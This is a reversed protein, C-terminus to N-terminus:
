VIRSLKGSKMFKLSSVEIKDKGDMEASLALKRLTTIAIRADGRCIYSIMRLLRVSYSGKRLSLEARDKLIDYIQSPLYKNFYIEKVYMRSLLRSSARMLAFRDTSALVLSLGLSNLRYLVDFSELRDFEDLFVIMPKGSLKAELRRLLEVESERRHFFVNLSSLIKALVSHSTKNLWCNVCCHNNKFHTSLIWRAITTKGAGPPGILAVNVPGHEFERLSTFLERLQSERHLPRSPLFEETLPIHNVIIKM